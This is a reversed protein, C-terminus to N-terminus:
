QRNGGLKAGARRRPKARSRWSQRQQRVEGSLLIAKSPGLSGYSSSARGFDIGSQPPYFPGSRAMAQAVLDESGSLNPLGDITESLTEPGM